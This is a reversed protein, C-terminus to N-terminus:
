ASALAVEAAAPVLLLLRILASCDEAVADNVIGVPQFEVFGGNSLGKGLVVAEYGNVPRSSFSLLPDDM